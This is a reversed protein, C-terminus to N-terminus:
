DAGWLRELQHFKAMAREVWARLIAATKLPDSEAALPDALESPAKMLDDRADVLFRSGWTRIYSLPVLEGRRLMNDLESREALAQARRLKASDLADTRERGKIVLEYEGSKGPPKGSPPRGPGRPGSRLRAAEQRILEASKGQKMKTSITAESLGTERALAAVGVNTVRKTPPPPAPPKKM